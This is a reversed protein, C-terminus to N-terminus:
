EEVMSGHVSMKPFFQYCALLLLSQYSYTVLAHLCQSFLLSHSSLLVPHGSTVKQGQHGQTRGCLGPSLGLIELAM